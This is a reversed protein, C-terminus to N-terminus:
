ETADEFVEKGYDRSNIPRDCCPCRVLKRAEENMVFGIVIFPLLFSGLMATLGTLILSFTFFRWDMVLKQRM